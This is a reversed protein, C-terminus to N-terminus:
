STSSTSRKPHRPARLNRKAGVTTPPATLPSPCEVGANDIQESRITSRAEFLRREALEVLSLGTGSHKAVLGTVAEWRRIAVDVYRPDLEMARAIRGTREAALLTTGSGVFPDLILGNRRSCDRIADSVLALPKVTPHLALESERGRRFSNAGPYDWVNTRYRGSAGLRFNNIHPADGNKFVLVLEHKSRYFSGMGANTKNWVCLQKLTLGAQRGAAILDGLHRWDMCVFQIAGEKSWGATQGLASTLFCSYEDGSMEGAAMIFSPHKARGLGSVNGQIPLNYPPDAFVMEAKAEGMLRAYDGSLTASGCLLRHRGLHWLDGVQSVAAGFVRTIGDALHVDKAPASDLLVDIEGTTFGTLEVEFDIDVLTRLGTILTDPDWAALEAIRNDAIAYALAESETLGDIRIVPVDSLGIRRAAEVRSRGALIMGEHDVLVPVTFGFRRINAALHHVQRHKRRRISRPNERLSAIPVSTVVLPREPPLSPRRNM